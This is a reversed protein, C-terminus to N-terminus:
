GVAPWHGRRLGRGNGGAHSFDDAWEIPAPDNEWQTNDDWEGTNPDQTTEIIGGTLPNVPRGQRDRRELHLHPGTANGTAGVNGVSQGQKIAQGVKVGIKSLHSYSSTTGDAHQIIVQNGYGSKNRPTAVVVGSAGAPAKAGSPLGIDIGAHNSSAMRGNATRFSKRPGFRSTIPANPVHFTEAEGSANVPQRTPRVTM